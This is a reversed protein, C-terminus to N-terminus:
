NRFNPLEDLTVVLPHNYVYNKHELTNYYEGTWFNNDASVGEATDWDSWTVFYLWWAGERAIRDPNPINSNESLAVMKKGSTARLAARYRAIQSDYNRVGNYIDEGVIDVFQDGPYWGEAQGNWVWVLNYIQHHDTLRHYMYRWLAIHAASSTVGDSRTAGWWFWRGSAEHIPRWLVPFDMTKLLGAIQDVDKEIQDFEPKSRDLESGIMPIRFRTQNSLFTDTEGSPDVWSWCFTVIGGRNWHETAEEVQHIGWIHGPDRTYNMFDYGMIAPAKGTDNIVRQFMDIEDQWSLDQQGSIIAKGWTSTLFEM